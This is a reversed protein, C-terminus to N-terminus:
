QKQRQERLRKGFTNFVRMRELDRENMFPILDKPVYSETYSRMYGPMQETLMRRADSYQYRPDVTQVKVGTLANVAAKGVRQSMPIREDFLAGGIGSVRPGPIM